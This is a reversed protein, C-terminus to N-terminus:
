TGTVEAPAVARAAGGAVASGGSAGRVVPAPGIFAVHTLAVAAADAADFPKPPDPLDLLVQVM